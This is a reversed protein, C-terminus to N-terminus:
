VYVIITGLKMNIVIYNYMRYVLVLLKFVITFFCGIHIHVIWHCVSCLEHMCVCFVRLLVIRSAISLVHM